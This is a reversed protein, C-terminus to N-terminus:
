TIDKIPFWNHLKQTYIKKKKKSEKRKISFTKWSSRNFFIKIKSLIKNSSFHKLYQSGIYKHQTTGVEFLLM